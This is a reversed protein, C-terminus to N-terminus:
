GARVWGANRHPQETRSILRDLLYLATHTVVNVGVAWVICVCMSVRVFFRALGLSFVFHSALAEVEGGKKTFIMIQPYISVSELYAAFTWLTDTLFFNNLRPHILQLSVCILHSPLSVTFTHSLSASSGVSSTVESGKNYDRRKDLGDERERV